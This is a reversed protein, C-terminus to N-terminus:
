YAVRESLLEMVALAVAEAPMAKVETVMMFIAATGVGAAM